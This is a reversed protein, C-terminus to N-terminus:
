HNQKVTNVLIHGPDTSTRSIEIKWAIDLSFLEGLPKNFFMNIGNQILIHRGLASPTVGDGQM